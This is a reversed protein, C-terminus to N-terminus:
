VLSDPPLRSLDSQSAFSVLFSSVFQFTLTNLSVFTKSTFTQSVRFPPLNHDSVWKLLIAIRHPALIWSNLWLSYSFPRQIQFFTFIFLEHSYLTNSSDDSYEGLDRLDIVPILISSITKGSIGYSCQLPYWTNQRIITDCM